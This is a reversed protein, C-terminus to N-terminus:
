LKEIKRDIAQSHIQTKWSFFSVDPESIKGKDNQKKKEDPLEPKTKEAM